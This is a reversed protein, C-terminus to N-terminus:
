LKRSRLRLALELLEQGLAIRGAATAFEHVGHELLVQGQDALGDLFVVGVMQIQADSESSRRRLRDHTHGSHEVHAADVDVLVLRGHEVAFRHDDILHKHGNARGIEPIPGKTQVVLRVHIDIRPLKGLFLDPYELGVLLLGGRSRGAIAEMM